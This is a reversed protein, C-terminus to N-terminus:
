DSVNWVARGDSFKKEFKLEDRPFQAEWSGRVGERDQEVFTVTITHDDKGLKATVEGEVGHRVVLDNVAPKIRHSFLVGMSQVLTLGKTELVWEEKEPSWLYSSFEGEKQSLCVKNTVDYWVQTPNDAVGGHESWGYMRAFVSLIAEPQKEWDECAGEEFCEWRAGRRVDRDQSKLPCEKTDLKNCTVCHKM